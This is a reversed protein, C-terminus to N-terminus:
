LRDAVADWIEAAGALFGDWYPEGPEVTVSFYSQGDKISGFVVLSHGNQFHNADSNDGTVMDELERATAYRKAWEIGDTRGEEHKSREEAGITDRLREVVTDIDSMVNEKAQAREVAKRLAEQCISSIPLDYARVQGAIEDPVSINMRTAGLPNEM